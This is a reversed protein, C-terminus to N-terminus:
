KRARIQLLMWGNILFLFLMSDHFKEKVTLWHPPALNLIEFLKALLHAGWFIELGVMIILILGRFVPPLFDLPTRSPPGLETQPAEYPNESL